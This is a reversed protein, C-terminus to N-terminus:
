PHTTPPWLDDHPLGNQALRIQAAFLRARLVTIEEEAEDLDEQVADARAARRRLTILWDPEPRIEQSPAIVRAAKQDRDGPRLIKQLALIITGVATLLLAIATLLGEASDLASIWM